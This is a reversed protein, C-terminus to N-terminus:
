TATAEYYGRTQERKHCTFLLFPKIFNKHEFYFEAKTLKKRFQKRRASKLIWRFYM